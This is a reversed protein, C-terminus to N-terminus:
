LQAYLLLLHNYSVSKKTRRRKARRVDSEANVVRPNQGPLPLLVHAPRHLLEEITTKKSPIKRINQDSGETGARGEQPTMQLHIQTRGLQTLLVEKTLFNQSQHTELDTSRGM